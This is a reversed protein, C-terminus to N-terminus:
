LHCMVNFSMCFAYFFCCILFVLFLVPHFLFTWTFIHFCIQLDRLYIHHDCFWLELCTQDIFYTFLPPDSNMVLFPISFGEEMWWEGAVGQRENGTTEAPHNRNKLSPYFILLQLTFLPQLIWCLWGMWKKPSQSWDLVGSSNHLVVQTARSEARVNWELPWWYREKSHM